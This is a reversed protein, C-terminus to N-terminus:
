EGLQEAVEQALNCAKKEIGEGVEYKVFQVIEATGGHKEAEKKIADAVSLSDDIVYMQDLLAEEADLSTNDSMFRVLKGPIINDWIKEPKGEAKLEEKIQETEKAIVDETIQLRSIYKPINKLPKGLRVLEENEKKTAEIRGITEAEVFAPDFDTYSLVSPKMASIHMSVNRLMPAMLEATKVSDCKLAVLAGVKGNSHIYGNVAGNEGAHLTLFRRIVIKEGIKATEETFYESFSGSEYSTEQLAEVTEVENSFIQETTKEVLSIFNDNKAVFDTESNIEVIAASAHTDAVKIGLLGEAAIRSSKKSAKAIGREKLYTLAKDMDGAAEDLAKKCDLMGAGTKARLAAIDSANIGM